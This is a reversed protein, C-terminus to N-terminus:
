RDESSFNVSEYFNVKESADHDYQWGIGVKRFLTM